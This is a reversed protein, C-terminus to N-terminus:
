TSSKAMALSSPPYRGGIYTFELISGNLTTRLTHGVYVTPDLDEFRLDLVYSFTFAPVPGRVSTFEYNEHHIHGGHAMGGILGGVTRPAM